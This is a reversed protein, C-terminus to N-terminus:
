HLTNERGRLKHGCLQCTEPVVKVPPTKRRRSPQRLSAPTRTPLSSCPAICRNTLKILIRHETRSQSPCPSSILHYSLHVLTKRSEQNEERPYSRSSGVWFGTKLEVSVAVWRLIGHGVYAPFPVHKRFSFSFHCEVSEQPDLSRTM